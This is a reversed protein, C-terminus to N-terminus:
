KQSEILEAVSSGSEIVKQEMAKKLEVFEKEMHKLHKEAIEGTSSSIFNERSSVTFPQGLKAACESLSSSSLISIPDPKHETDILTKASRNGLMLDYLSALINTEKTGVSKLIQSSLYEVKENMQLIHTIIDAVRNEENRSALFSFMLAAWQKKLYSEIDSFDKFPFMANNFSSKRVEDIFDFIRTNDVAPYHIDEKDIKKNNKNKTYVHHESYVDQEVLSFIPIKHRSAEQYEANTISKDGGKFSGGYRGGIILVFLQCNPVESICADHTHKVPDYFVSGEESLVPEYGLTRIFYNLNQRIYKLDYCTSSIFVRPIAM